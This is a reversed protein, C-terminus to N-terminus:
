KSDGVRVSLRNVIVDAEGLVIVSWRSFILMTAPGGDPFLVVPRVGEVQAPNVWVPKENDTDTFQILSM